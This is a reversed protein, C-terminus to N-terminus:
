RSFRRARARWARARSRATAAALDSRAPTHRYRGCGYKDYKRTCAHLSCGSTISALTRICAPEPEPLRPRRLLADDVRPELPLLSGAIALGWVAAQLPVNALVVVGYVQLSRGCCYRCGSAAFGGGRRRGFAAAGVRSPPRREDFPRQTGVLLRADPYKVRGRHLLVLGEGLRDVVVHLPEVGDSFAAREAIGGDRRLAALGAVLAV